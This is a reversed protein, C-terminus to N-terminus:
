ERLHWKHDRSVFRTDDNLCYAVTGSPIGLRAILDRRRAPGHARIFNAIEDKRRVRGNGNAGAAVDEVTVRGSHSGVSDSIHTNGLREVSEGFERILQERINQLSAIRQDILEVAKVMDPHM